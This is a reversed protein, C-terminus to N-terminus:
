LMLKGPKSSKKNELNAIAKKLNAENERKYGKKNSEMDARSRKHLTRLIKKKKRQLLLKKWKLLMMLQMDDPIEGGHIKVPM